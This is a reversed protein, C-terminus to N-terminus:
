HEDSEEAPKFIKLKEQAKKIDPIISIGYGIRKKQLILNMRKLARGMWKSNIWDESSQSFLRFEDTLQKMSYFTDKKEPQQSIFQILLVDKNEILEESKRENFIGKLTLTTIKLIELSEKEIETSILCLPFSLELERGRLSMSNISKFVQTYNTYNTNNTYNIYNTYNNKVYENWAKYVKGSFSCSCLSCQNLLKKTEIIREDEDFIEMLNTINDKSSKELVLHICRDGLTSEMGWINAMAIPRYVSFEEVVQEVGEFTKKQKMRKIVSGKKYSANLLERVAEIGKREVGEFEDIGLCGKTRFLVAETPSLLMEGDKSLTTILNLTRTKGGGKIANFFLFPYSPFREHFYTGIIWLAIINYYEEKLDLFEKLIDLINRYATKLNEKFEEEQKTLNISPNSLKSFEDDTLGLSEKKSLEILKNLKKLKKSGCSCALPIKNPSCIESMCDLCQYIYRNIESM